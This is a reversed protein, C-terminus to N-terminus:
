KFRGPSQKATVGILRVRGSSDRLFDAIIGQIANIKTSRAIWDLPEKRGQGSCRAPVVPGAIQACGAEGAYNIHVTAGGGM